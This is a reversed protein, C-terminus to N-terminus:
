SATKDKDEPAYLVVGGAFGAYEGDKNLRRGNGGRQGGRDGFSTAAIRLGDASVDLGRFSTANKIMHSETEGGPKWFWLVGGGESSGAGIVYGDPHFAIDLVPGKFSQSARMLNTQEGTQWDFALVTPDGHAQNANTGEFGACYLTAFDSAFAMARVGGQEYQHYAKFLKGADLERVCKGTELNWHKVVGHQDGSALSQGDQHFALSQM